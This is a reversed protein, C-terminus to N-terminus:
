PKQFSFGSCNVLQGLSVPLRKHCTNGRQHNECEFCVRRTDLEYDRFALKDALVEAADTSMGRRQFLGHRYKFRSIQVENWAPMRPTM